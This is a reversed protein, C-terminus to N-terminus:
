TWTKTLACGLAGAVRDLPLLEDAAPRPTMAHGSRYLHQNGGFRQQQMM